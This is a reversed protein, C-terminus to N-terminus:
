DHKNKGQKAREVSVIIYWEGDATTGTKFVNETDEDIQIVNALGRIADRVIDM